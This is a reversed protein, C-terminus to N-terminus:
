LSPHSAKWVTILDSVIATAVALTDHTVHGFNALNQVVVVSNIFDMTGAVVNGVDM